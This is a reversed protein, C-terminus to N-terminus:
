PHLVAPEVQAAPVHLPVDADPRLEYPDDALFHLALTEDVDLSRHEPLRRGFSRAVEDHGRAQLRPPEVRQRLRRLDCLLQEHDRAELAVVLDRAAEAVLVWAGVPQLLQSLEVHLHREGVAFEDEGQHLPDGHPDPAFADAGVLDSSCVDSSWDRSFITHRRRSSFFFFFNYYM